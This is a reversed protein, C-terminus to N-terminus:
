NELKELKNKKRCFYAFIELDNKTKDRQRLSRKERKVVGGRRFNRRPLKGKDYHNYALFIHMSEGANSLKRPACVKRMKRCLLSM